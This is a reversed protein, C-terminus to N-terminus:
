PNRKLQHDSTLQYVKKGYSERMDNPSVMLILYDPEYNIGEERLYNLQQDTGWAPVSVNMVEYNTEGTKNQNLKKEFQSTFIQEDSYEIGGFTYSDGLVIIRKTNEPKKLPHNRDRFGDRNFSFKKEGKTEHHNPKLRWILQKDYVFASIPYKGTIRLAVEGALLLLAFILFSYLLYYALKVKLSTKKNPSAAPM